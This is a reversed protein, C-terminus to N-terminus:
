KKLDMYLQSCKLNEFLHYLSPTDKKSEESTLGDSSDIYAVIHYKKNDDLVINITKKTLGSNKLFFIGKKTKKCQLKSECAENLEQLDLIPCTLKFELEYYYNFYGLSRSPSWIKDDIWRKIKTTSEEFVFIQDGRIAQKEDTVLRRM